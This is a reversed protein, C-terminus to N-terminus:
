DELGCSLLSGTLVVDKYGNLIKLTNIAWNPDSFEIDADIFAVAKWDEPLLKNVGVRQLGEKAWWASTNTRLQLHRPHNPEAVRHKQNGYALEVIYLICDPEEHEFRAVFERALIFRRAYQVPNSIAIIVHLKEEIPDNNRIAGNIGNANYHINDIEINNIITM